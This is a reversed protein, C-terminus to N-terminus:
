DDTPNDVIEEVSVEDCCFDFDDDEAHSTQCHSQWVEADNCIIGCSCKLKKRARTRLELEREEKICRALTLAEYSQREVDGGKFLREGSEGEVADYHQGNYLIFIAGRSSRDTPEYKAFISAPIFPICAFVWIAVNFHKALIDIENGGGYVDLRQLWECYEATSKGEGLLDMTYKTPNNLIAEVCVNRLEIGATAREEGTVLYDISTFLCSGDPAVRKQKM